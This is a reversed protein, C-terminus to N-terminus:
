CDRPSPTRASQPEIPVDCDPLVARRAERVAPAPLSLGRDADGRHEQSRRPQHAARDRRDASHRPRCRCRSAVRAARVAACLCQAIGSLAAPRRQLRHRLGADVQRLRIRRHGGDDRRASHARRCQAPQARARRARRDARDATTARGAGAATACESDRVAARAVLRTTGRARPRHPRQTANRFAAPTGRRRHPRRRRRRRSGDRHALGRRRDRRPQARHRAAFPGTRLLKGFARMLQAIDEFHLGTTPEDFIM